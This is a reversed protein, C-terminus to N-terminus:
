RMLSTHPSESGTACRQWSIIHHTRLGQDLACTPTHLGLGWPDAPSSPRCRRCSLCAAAAAAAFAAHQLCCFCRHLLYSAAPGPCPLPWHQLCCRHCRCAAAAASAPLRAYLPPRPRAHAEEEPTCFAKGLFCINCSQRSAHLLVSLTAPQVPWHILPQSPCQNSGACKQWFHPAGVSAQM